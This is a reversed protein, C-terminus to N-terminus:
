RTAQKSYVTVVLYLDEIFECIILRNTLKGEFKWKKILDYYNTIIAETINNELYSSKLSTM